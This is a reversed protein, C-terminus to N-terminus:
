KYELMIIYRQILALSHNQLPSYYDCAMGLSHSRTMDVKRPAVWEESVPGCSWVATAAPALACACSVEGRGVAAFQVRVARAGGRAFDAQEKAILSPPPGGSRGPPKLNLIQCLLM